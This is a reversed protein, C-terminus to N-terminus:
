ETPEPNRIKALYMTRPRTGLEHLVGYLRPSRRWQVMPTEVHQLAAFQIAGTPCAQQCATVVEGPAIPRKEMRANIEAGRIRQICFTCKEMVGRARVTVDPNKQLATLTAPQDYNFWNFRRVKYPCNNSCFRTGVCRNYVMENLGDPSHVTANVPCVYECPANECHQCLMPQNVVEVHSPTESVYTDIRLWHMERGRRVGEAGVVPVNNEAQCAVVCSSCGTCITTDITMAWQPLEDSLRPRDILTPLPGRHAEAFRPNARYSALDLHLAIERGHQDLHEQTRALAASRGTRTAKVGRVIRGGTALVYGNSGLRHSIPADPSTGGYGLELTICDDAHGPAILVPAELATGAILQLVDGNGVGLERATAASLMAANGWTLKTLPHPLEQLWPNNAFTGDGIAPSPALNVELGDSRAGITTALATTIGADDRATVQQVPAATNPVIGEGLVANWEADTPLTAQWHARVLARDFPVLERTLMALIQLRSRTEHLPQILPQIPSVTGDWARADGWSELYHSLPLSWKCAATTAGAHMAAHATMPVQRLLTALELEPPASFVPDCEIALVTGVKGARIATALEGLQAEGLPAILAPQTFSTTQGVAGLALSIRHALAHVAAPQRDGVVLASAGRHRILATAALDVWALWRPDRIGSHAANRLKPPLAVARLGRRELVDALLVVVTAVDGAPIALRHDALTGTPTVMPEAVFLQVPREGPEVARRRKAFDRAWRISMPMSGLPDADLSIVLDARDLALQLELPAGFALVTGQYAATRDIAAHHVVRLGPRQQRVRELLAALTPSGDPPVVLWVEGEPLRDLTERFRQWSAPLGTVRPARLRLPDYLDLISAQHHPLTAGLSAPHAPNGEIKVPRGDHAEALLGTAYGDIVMSTAFFRPTGPKVEPRQVAPRIEEGPRQMCAVEFLALGAGFLQLAERRTVQLRTTLPIPANSDSM